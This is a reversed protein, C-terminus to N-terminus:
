SPHAGSHAGTARELYADILGAAEEENGPMLHGYLDHTITISAHGMYTSLAKANVGAAIMISAATHRCEHLGVPDLGAAEWADRARLLITSDHYPAEATHGFALGTTRGGRLRHAILHERLQKAIPVRRRGARSKPETMVRGRPDWSREVRIIGAELDVDEWRLAMLEGRRLGAYLAVAWIARDAEDLADLYAQAEEPPVVRERRGQPTPLELGRTPNVAVEGGPRCARRYIARLPMIANRITSPDLGEALLEDALDQLDIAAIDSLRHAGLRPVIRGKLAREYGRLTSPKYARGTRDRITGQKAGALWAEAAERLTTRTPQRLQGRELESSARSRWSKAESLTRHSKRIKRGTRKDFVAAEFALRCGDKRGVTCAGGTRSPCKRSHRERVGETPKPM